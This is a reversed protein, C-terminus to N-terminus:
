RCGIIMLFERWLSRSGYMSNLGEALANTILKLLNMKKIRILELDCTFIQCWKRRLEFDIRARKRPDGLGYPEEVRKKRVRCQLGDNLELSIISLNM